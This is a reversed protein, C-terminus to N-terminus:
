RPQLAALANAYGRARQESYHDVAVQAVVLLLVGAAMGHLWGQRTLLLATFAMVGLLVAAWRYWRYKGIVIGIRAQEGDMATAAQPGALASTLAARLTPDRGLLSGATASLLSACVVVTALLGKAFGDRAALFLGLAAMVFLACGALLTLMELREGEFYRLVTATALTQAPTDIPM